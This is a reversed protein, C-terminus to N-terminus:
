TSLWAHVSDSHKSSTSMSNEETNVVPM